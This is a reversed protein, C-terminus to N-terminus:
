NTVADIWVEYILAANAPILGYVKDGFGYRGSFVIFSHEGAQVGQLGKALGEVFGAESLTVALPEFRTKDDTDWGGEDATAEHNTVFLNSISVSGNFIYGAYHFSLSGSPSLAEGTGPTEILRYVGGLDVYKIEDTVKSNLFSAIRTEQNAYVAERNQKVCSLLGCLLLFIFPLRRM